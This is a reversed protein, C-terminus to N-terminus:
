AAVAAKHIGSLSGAELLDPLSVSRGTRREIAATLWLLHVSDWGAIEDLPRDADEVSVPLGLEDRILVVLDDITTM